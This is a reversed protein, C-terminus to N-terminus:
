LTNVVAVVQAAAEGDPEHTKDGHGENGHDAERRRKKRRFTHRLTAMVGRHQRPADRHDGGNSSASATSQPERPRKEATPARPRHPRTLTAYGSPVTTLADAASFSKTHVPLTASRMEDGMSSRAPAHRFMSFSRGRSDVTASGHSSAGPTSGTVLRRIRGAFSPRKGLGAKEKDTYQRFLSSLRRPINEVGLGTLGSVELLESLGFTDQLQFAEDRDVQREVMEIGEAELEDETEDAMNAVLIAPFGNTKLEQGEKLKAIQELLDRARDFSSRSNVSFVVVFCDGKELEKKTISEYEAGIAGSVDVLHVNEELSTRLPMSFNHVEQFQLLSM